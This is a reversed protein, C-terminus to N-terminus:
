FRTELATFTRLRAGRTFAKRAALKILRRGIDAM